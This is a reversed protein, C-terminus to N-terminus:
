RELWGRCTCLTTGIPPSSRTGCAYRRAPASSGRQPAGRVRHTRRVDSLRSVDPVGASGDAASAVVATDALSHRQGSRSRHRRLLETGDVPLQLVVSVLM